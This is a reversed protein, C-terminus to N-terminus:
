VQEPLSSVGETIFSNEVILKIEELAMNIQRLTKGKLHPVTNHIIDKVAVLDESNLYCKLGLKELELSEQGKNYITAM